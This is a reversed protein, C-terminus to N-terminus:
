WGKKDGMFVGPFYCSGKIWNGCGNGCRWAERGRMGAEGGQSSKNRWKGMEFAKSIGVLSATTYADWWWPLCGSQLFPSLHTCSLEAYSGLPQILHVRWNCSGPSKFIVRWTLLIVISWVSNCLKLCRITRPHCKLHWLTRFVICLTSVPCAM